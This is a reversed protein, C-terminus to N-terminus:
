IATVVDVTASHFVKVAIHRACFNVPNKAYLFKLELSIDAYHMRYKSEAIM